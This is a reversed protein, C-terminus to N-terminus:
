PQTQRHPFLDERAWLIVSAGGSPHQRFALWRIVAQANDLPWLPAATLTFDQGYYAAETQSLTFGQPTLIAEPQEDPLLALAQRATSLNHFAWATAKSGTLDVLQLTDRRGHHWSGLDGVTQQLLRMQATTAHPYWIEAERPGNVVRVTAAWMLAAGALTLGWTLGGWAERWSRGVDRWSIAMLGSVVVLLGLSVLGLILNLRAAPANPAANGWALFNFWAFSLIALAVATQWSLDKPHSTPLQALAWAAMGWLPTLVWVLDQSSRGPYFMILLAASLTLWGLLTPLAARRYSALAAGILGAGTALPAYAVLALGLLVLPAAQLTLLGQGFALLSNFATGLGEPAWFALSSGFVLVGLAMGVGQRAEAVSFSIRIKHGAVRYLALGLGLSMLGLWFTPGLLMGTAALPLAWRWHNHVAMLVAATLALAAPIPSYALRSLAVLGPDLALAFALVLAGRRGLHPRMPWALLPFLSGLLAPMLRATADTSGFLFFTLGTLTTLLPAPGLTTPHRAAVDLAQLALQAEKESLPAQGLHWLRVGFALAVAAGYLLHETSIHSSTKM